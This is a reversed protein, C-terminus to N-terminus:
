DTTALWPQYIFQRGGQAQESRLKNAGVILGRRLKAGDRCTGFTM